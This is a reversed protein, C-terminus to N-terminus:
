SQGWASPVAEEVKLHEADVEAALQVDAHVTLTVQTPMGAQSEFSVRSTRLEKGDIVVRGFGDRNIFVTVVHPAESM